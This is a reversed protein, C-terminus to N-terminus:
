ANVVVRLGVCCGEADDRSVFIRACCGCAWGRCDPLPAGDDARDIVLEPGDADGCFREADMTVERPKSASRGENKPSNFAPGVETLQM